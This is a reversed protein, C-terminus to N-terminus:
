DFPGSRKYNRMAASAAEMDPFASSLLLPVGAFGLTVRRVASIEGYGLVQTWGPVCIAVHSGLPIWSLTEGFDTTM